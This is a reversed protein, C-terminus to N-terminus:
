GGKRKVLIWWCPIESPTKRPEVKVVYGSREMNAKVRRAEEESYITDVFEWEAM